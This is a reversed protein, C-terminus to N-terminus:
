ALKEHINKLDIYDRASKRNAEKEEETLPRVPKAPRGLALMGEPIVTGGTVLSGAGIISDRGIVSGNMLISGMGVLVNDEITCGHIIAAHGITVNKGVRCPYGHDAHIVVQDQVNTGQGIVVQDEDGRIVANYWIGCDSGVSVKGVLCAGPAVWTNEGIEANKIYNM